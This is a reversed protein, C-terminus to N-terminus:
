SGSLFVHKIKEIYIDLTNVYQKHLSDIYKYM